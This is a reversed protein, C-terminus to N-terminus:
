KRARAPFTHLTNVCVCKYNNCNINSENKELLEKVKWRKSQVFVGIGADLITSITSTYITPPLALPSMSLSAGLFAGARCLGM